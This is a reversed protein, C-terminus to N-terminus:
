SRLIHKEDSGQTPHHRLDPRLNHQLLADRLVSIGDRKLASVAVAPLDTSQQLTTVALASEHEKLLDTKNAVVIAPKQLLAPSYLRLEDQLYPRM